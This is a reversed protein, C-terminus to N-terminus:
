AIEVRPEIRPVNRGTSQSMGATPVVRVNRTNLRPRSATPRSPKGRIALGRQEVQPHRNSEQGKGPPHQLARDFGGRALDELPFRGVVVDLNNLDPPRAEEQEVFPLADM